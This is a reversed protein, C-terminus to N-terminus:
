LISYDNLIDNIEVAQGLKEIQAAERFDRQFEYFAALGHEYFAHVRQLQIVRKNSFYQFHFIRFKFHQVRCVGLPSRLFYPFGGGTFNAQM